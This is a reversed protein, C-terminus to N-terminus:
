SMMETKSPLSIEEDEAGEPLEKIEGKAYKLLTEIEDLLNDVEETHHAEHIDSIIGIFEGFTFPPEDDEADTGKGSVLSELVATIGELIKFVNGTYYFNSEDEDCGIAVIGYAEDSKINRAFEKLNETVDDIGKIIQKNKM